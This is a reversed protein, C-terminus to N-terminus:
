FYMTSPNVIDPILYSFALCIKDTQSLKDVFGQYISVTSLSEVTLHISSPNETKDEIGAYM